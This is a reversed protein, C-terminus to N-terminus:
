ESPPIRLAAHLTLYAAARVVHFYDSFALYLLVAISWWILFFQQTAVSQFALPSASLVMALVILAIRVICMVLNIELLKGRLLKPTTFATRLSALTGTNNRMALLPALQLPWSIIAWAVYLVLTGPILMAAFLVLNPFQTDTSPTLQAIGAATLAGRVFIAWTALLLAARLTGLAFLTLRRAHLQPDVHRLVVTRGLAAAVNWLLFLALTAPILIHWQPAYISGGHLTLAAWTRLDEPHSLWDTGTHLVLPVLILAGIIWRWAIELASLAPRQWIAVMVTVFSQTGRVPAAM